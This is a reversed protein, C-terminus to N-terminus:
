LGSHQRLMWSRFAHLKQVDQNTDKSEGIIFDGHFKVRLQNSKRTENNKSSFNASGKIKIASINIGISLKGSIEAANSEENVTKEFIFVSNAGPM